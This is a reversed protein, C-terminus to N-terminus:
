SYYATGTGEVGALPGGSKIIRNASLVEFVPKVWVKKHEVNKVEQNNRETNQKESQMNKVAINKM